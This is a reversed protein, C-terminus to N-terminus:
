LLLAEETSANADAGKLAAQIEAPAYGLEQLAATAMAVNGGSVPAAVATGMSFDLETTSGGLVESLEELVADAGGGRKAARGDRLRNLALNQAIRGVYLRLHEPRNPPISSWVQMWVDAVVEEVDARDALIGGAIATCYRHYERQLASLAEPRLLGHTDSLVGIKM